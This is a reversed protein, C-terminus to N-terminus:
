NLNEYLTSYFGKKTMLEQHTGIEEIHGNAIVVIRDANEITTLRHAIIITTRDKTLAELAQQIYRESENDLASTAEDLILIPADKLLARAIALRQRQGGSLRVGKEGILTDLGEPMKEIFDMAYAANAADIVQSRPTDRMEGYAINAEVSDNFLIVEQSVLAINKRLSSLPMSQIDIGDILISGQDLNYFRPILNAITTKGGGSPGVLAIREGPKITLSLSDVAPKASGPYSFCVQDFKIQGQLREVQHDGEDKEPLQDVLEFVSQAAALGPQLQENIRILKKIPSMMMALAGIFSVFAGVTFKNELSQLSAYYVVGALGLVMILQGAPSALAAAAVRKMHYRRVWNTVHAFRKTEYEQGGFLKVVKNGQIGEELVHTMDGMSSQISESLQRLRRSISNVLLGILPGIILISLTLRWDLYLMWGLLGLVAVSDRVLVILVETSASAVQQVNFTIKSLVTGTPNDDYYRNPLTMLRQFMENRLDMVVKNAVWQIAMTSTYSAIGRLIFIGILALPMLRITQMDKEVFSGDLLPKFLAPLVWETLALLVTFLISLTFTKRYPRVYGLLRLYLQKSTM